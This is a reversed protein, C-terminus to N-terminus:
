WASSSLNRCLRREKQVQLMDSPFAGGECQWLLRQIADSEAGASPRTECCSIWVSKCLLLIIQMMSCGEPKAFRSKLEKPYTRCVNIENTGGHYFIDEAHDSSNHSHNSSPLSELPSIWYDASLSPLMYVHEMCRWVNLFFTVLHEFVKLKGKLSGNLVKCRM